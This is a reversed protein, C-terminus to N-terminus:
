VKNEMWKKILNKKISTYTIMKKKLFFRVLERLNSLLQNDKALKWLGTIMIKKHFYYFKLKFKLIKKKFM